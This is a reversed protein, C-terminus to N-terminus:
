DLFPEVYKVFLTENKQWDSHKANPVEFFKAKGQKHLTQLGFVDNVYVPQQEMHEIVLKNNGVYKWYGFLASQWPDIVEDQPSATFVALNLKLFNTRQQVLVDRNFHMTENLYQPIFSCHERYQEFHIPDRGLNTLHVCITLV